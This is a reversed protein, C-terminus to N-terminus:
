FNLLHGKIQVEECLKIAHSMPYIVYDIENNWYGILEILYGFNLTADLRGKKEPFDQVFYPKLSRYHLPPFDSIIINLM